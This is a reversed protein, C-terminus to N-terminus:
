HTKARIDLIKRLEHIDPDAAIVTGQPDVLFLTPLKRVGLKELIPHKFDDMALIHGPWDLSDKEMAKLWAEQNREAGISLIDFDAKESGIQQGKYSQYITRLTVNEKRCSPCWSGWFHLIWYSGRYDESRVKRGDIGLGEIAPVKDGNRIGPMFYLHRGIFVGVVLLAAIIALSSKKNM